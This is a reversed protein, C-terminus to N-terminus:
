AKRESILDAFENVGKLFSIKPLSKEKRTQNILKIIIKRAEEKTKPKLSQIFDQTIYYGKKEFVGIGIMDFNRNLINERHQPSNMLTNHIIEPVFTESFAINEGTKIFYLDEKVLYDIFSKGDSFLHSLRGQEAMDKSHKNAIIRLKMSYELPRLNIKEREKNILEFLSKEIETLPPKKFKLLKQQFLPNKICCIVTILIFIKKVTIFINSKFVLIIYYFKTFFHLSPLNAALLKNIFIFLTLFSYFIFFAENNIITEHKNNKTEKEEFCSSFGNKLSNSM